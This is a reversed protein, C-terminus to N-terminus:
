SSPTSNGSGGDVGSVNEAGGPVPVSSGGTVGKQRIRWRGFLYGLLGSVAGIPGGTALRELFVDTGGAAPSVEPGSADPDTFLWSVTDKLVACGSGCLMLGLLFGYLVRAM